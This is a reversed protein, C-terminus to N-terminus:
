KHFSFILIYIMTNLSNLERVYGCHQPCHRATTFLGHTKTNNDYDSTTTNTQLLVRGRPVVQPQNFSLATCKVQAM